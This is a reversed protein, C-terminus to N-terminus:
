PRDVGRPYTRGITMREGDVNFGEGARGGGARIVLAGGAAGVRPADVARLEGTEGVQFAVTDDSAAGAPALFAGCKQCYNAGETNVLGCEPCHM